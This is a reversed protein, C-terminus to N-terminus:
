DTPRKLVAVVTGYSGGKLSRLSHLIDVHQGLKSTWLGSRLQRAAHTPTGAKAFLAIKESDAEPEEGECRAYGLSEFAAVFSDVSEERAIGSPWYDQGMPDPWWWTDTRGAAWAVCNYTRDHPSTIEYDSDSLRPFATEIESSGRTAM